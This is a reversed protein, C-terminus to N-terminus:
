WIIIRRMKIMPVRKEYAKKLAIRLNNSLLSNAYTIGFNFKQKNFENYVKLM